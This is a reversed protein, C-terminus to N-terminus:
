NRLEQKRYVEITFQHLVSFAQPRMQNLLDALERDFGAVQEPPLSAGVGRSSRIRGRWQEHTFPLEADFTHLTELVFPARMWAAERLVIRRAGGGSWRPNCRSILAETAAVLDCEEPLWYMNIIALRGGPPLISQLIPLVAERDFYHWCQVATVVDFSDDPFDLEEVPGVQWGIEMGEKEALSRAARVQNSAIDVGTFKAGTGYMFRPFTGTGTGIDLIRQGKRGIGIALLKERLEDPLIDRYKAYDLSTKGWDFAQGGDIHELNM